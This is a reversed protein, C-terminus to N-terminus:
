ILALAMDLGSVFGDEVRHGLCWDGCLGIRTKPDRAFSQGLAQTTQAYRWRHVATYSPIARVGTIETFARLLKATVREASDELHRKSWEASANVTWREIPSRRPKSSERALWAIRHHTSRAANWQPGIQTPQQAQPFALMLSWCPAVTVNAMAAVLLAAQQSSVLLAQAQPSPVALVVEDFGSYVRSSGAPGETQLQWKDAFLKDPEIRSVQTQLVLQQADILPQAWHKVLADMGPAAVYHAELAPKAAAVVRGAEDLIRVANASWPRVVSPSTSLALAFRADRVTFYQAGHDFGGHETTRCSMRGGAGRSKEFVTVTHGAQVLTRACTIGAIGAGVVAIHRPAAPVPTKVARSLSTKKTM